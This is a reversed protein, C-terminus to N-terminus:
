GYLKGRRLFKVWGFDVKVYFEIFGEFLLFNTGFVVGLCEFKWCVFGDKGLRVVESEYRFAEVYRSVM